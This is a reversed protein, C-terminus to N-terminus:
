AKFCAHVFISDVILFVNREKSSIGIPSLEDINKVYYKM